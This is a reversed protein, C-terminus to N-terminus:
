SHVTRCVGVGRRSTGVAVLLDDDMDSPELHQAFSNNIVSCSSM